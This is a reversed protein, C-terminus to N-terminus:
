QKKRFYVVLTMYGGSGTFTLQVGSKEYGSLEVRSLPIWRDRKTTPELCKYGENRVYDTEWWIPCTLIDGDASQKLRDYTYRIMRQAQEIPVMGLQETGSQPHSSGKGLAASCALALSLAILTKTATM